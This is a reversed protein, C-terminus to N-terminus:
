SLKSIRSHSYLPKLPMWHSTAGRENGLQDEELAIAMSVKATHERHTEIDRHTSLWLLWAWLLHRSTTTSPHPSHVSENKPQINMRCSHFRERWWKTAERDKERVRDSGQSWKDQMYIVRVSMDLGLSSTAPCYCTNVCWSPLATLSWHAECEGEGSEETDAM